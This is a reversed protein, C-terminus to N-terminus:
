FSYQTSGLGNRDTEARKQKEATSSTRRGCSERRSEQLEQVRGRQFAFRLLSSPEHANQACGSIDIRTASPSQM